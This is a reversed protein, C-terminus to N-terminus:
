SDEQALNGRFETSTTEPLIIALVLSILEHKTNLRACMGSYPLRSKILRTSVSNNMTQLSLSSHVWILQQCRISCSYEM